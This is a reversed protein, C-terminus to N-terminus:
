RHVRQDDTTECWSGSDSGFRRRAARGDEAVGKILGATPEFAVTMRATQAETLARGLGASGPDAADPLAASGYTQTYHRAPAADWDIEDVRALTAVAGEASAPAPHTILIPPAASDWAPPQFGAADSPVRPMPSSAIALLGEDGGDHRSTTTTATPKATSPSAGAPVSRTTGSMVHAGVVVGLVIVTVALGALTPLWLGRRRAERKSFQM